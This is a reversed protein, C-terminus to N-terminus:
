RGPVAVNFREFLSLDSQAYDARRAGTVAADNAAARKVPAQGAGLSLRSAAAEEVTMHAATAALIELAAVPDALRAACKAEEGPRIRGHEILKAVVGPIAAAVKQRQAERAAADKAAQAADQAAKEIVVSTAAIYELIQRNDPM